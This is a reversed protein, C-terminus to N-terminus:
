HFPRDINIVAYYRGDMGHVALSLRERVEDESMESEFPVVVDFIFNTRDKGRVVRFDHISFGEQWSSIIGCLASRVKELEIDDVAIPDMHIVIHCGLEEGAEREARDIVEHVAVIDCDECVEAHLSVMVRGPGYDHVILDHIGIICDYSLVRERIKAVFEPDAASGLLPLVTDKAAGFASWLIFLSVVAGVYGDISVGWIKSVFLAALSACTSVCDSLSDKSTALLSASDIMKGIRRNYAFMYVKVCVSAALIGAAVWSFDVSEPTIIKAVSSKALEFGMLAIVFAIVLGSIYETRGHGFPHKKDPKKGALRFGALAIVSSGADSLNNMADATVAISRSLVGAFVKAVCLLLNLAIGAGGCVTGWTERAKAGTKEGVIRTGISYVM